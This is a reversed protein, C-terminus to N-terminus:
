PHIPGLGQHPCLCALFLFLNANRTSFLPPSKGGRGSRRANIGMQRQPCHADRELRFVSEWGQHSDSLRGGHLWNALVTMGLHITIPATRGEQLPGTGPRNGHPHSSTAAPIREAATTQGSCSCHPLKSFVLYSTEPGQAQLREAWVEWLDCVSSELTKLKAFVM